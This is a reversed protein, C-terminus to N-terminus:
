VNDFLPVFTTVQLLLPSAHFSLVVPVFVYGLPIMSFPADPANLSAAVDPATVAVAQLIVILPVVAAAATKLLLEVTILDKFKPLEATTDTDPEAKGNVMVPVDVRIVDPVFQANVHFKYM